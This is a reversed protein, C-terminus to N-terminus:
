DPIMLAGITVPGFVTMVERAELIARAFVGMVTEVFAM